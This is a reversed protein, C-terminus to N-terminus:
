RTAVVSSGLTGSGADGKRLDPYLDASRSSRRSKTLTLPNGILNAYMLRTRGPRAIGAPGELVEKATQLDGMGIRAGAIWVAVPVTVSKHQLVAERYRGLRDLASEIDLNVLESPRAPYNADHFPEAAQLLPQSERYLPLAKESEGSQELPWGLQVKIKGLKGKLDRNAPDAKLLTELIQQAKRLNQIPGDLDVTNSTDLSFQVNAVRYYGMALDAMLSADGGADRVPADLTEVSGGAL